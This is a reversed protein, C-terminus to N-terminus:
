AAARIVNRLADVDIGSLRFLEITTQRQLCRRLVGVQNATLKESNELAWAALAEDTAFTLRRNTEAAGSAASPTESNDIVLTPGAPVPEPTIDIFPM